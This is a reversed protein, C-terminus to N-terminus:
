IYIYIYIYIHTHKPPHTSPQPPIHTPTTTRTHSHTYSLEPQCNCPIYHYLLPPLIKEPLTLVVSGHNLIWKPINGHAFFRYQWQHRVHFCALHNQHVVGIHTRCNKISTNCTRKEECVFSPNIHKVIIVILYIKYLVFYLWICGMLGDQKKHKVICINLLLPWDMCSEFIM